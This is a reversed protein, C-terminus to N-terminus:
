SPVGADVPTPSRVTREMGEELDVRAEFGLDRAAADGSFANDHEFFALSRRSVPPERRALASALEVGLLGGLVLPRPLRLRPVPVGQVRACVEVLERVEVARPGVVLYPPAADTVGADIARVLAEVAESVYLPHRLNTGKGVFFFRGKRVTRLLKETRPCGPGYVWGPRLVVLEMSSSRAADRVAVEGLLKTREYENTPELPGSEDVPPSEVHGYVGVSSVHVFRRVGAGSAARFLTRSGGVNVSEYWDAPAGHQLHASALHLVVDAGKLVPALGEDDRIDLQIWRVEGADERPLGPARGEVVRDVARVTWGDAALRRVLHRGIFGAAGTVVVVRGRGVGGVRPRGQTADAVNPPEKAGGRPGSRGDSRVTM